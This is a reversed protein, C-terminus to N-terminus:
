EDEVMIWDPTPDFSTIAQVAAPTKDGLENEYIAGTQNMIFTSEGTEGPRTPWAIIAYGDVLHGNVLYNRVGGEANAGQSTLIAYGYGGVPHHEPDDPKGEAKAFAENLLSTTPGPVDEYVSNVLGDLRGETGRIRQAYQVVGDGARDRQHYVDQARALARLARIANEENIAIRQRKMEAVGAAGDFVWGAKVKVLPIPLRFNEQGVVARAKTHSDDDYVISRQEKALRDGAARRQADSRREEPPISELVDQGFIEIMPQLTPAQMAGVLADVAQEPKDFSRVEAHAAVVAMSVAAGIAYARLNVFM